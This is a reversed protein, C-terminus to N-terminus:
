HVFALERLQKKYWVSDQNLSIRLKTFLLPRVGENVLGFNPHVIGVMIQLLWFFLKREHVAHCGIM